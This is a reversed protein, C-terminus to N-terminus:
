FLLLIFDIKTLLHGNIHRVTDCRSLIDVFHLVAVRLDGIGWFLHLVNAILAKIKIGLGSTM